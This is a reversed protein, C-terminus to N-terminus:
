IKAPLLGAAVLHQRIDQPSLGTLDKAAERIQVGENASSQLIPRLHGLMRSAAVLVVCKAGRQKALDLAAASIRAAFRRAVEQEHSDRHDDYRHTPGGGPSTNSGSRTDSWTERGSLTAEPNVLDSREVLRPGSALEPVEAPELTFFRARSADAVVICYENM